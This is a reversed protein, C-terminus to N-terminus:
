SDSVSMSAFSSSYSNLDLIITSTRCFPLTIAKYEEGFETYNNKRQLTILNPMVGSCITSLHLWMSFPLSKQLTLIKLFFFFTSPFNLVFNQMIFNKYM